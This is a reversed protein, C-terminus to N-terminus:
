NINVLGNQHDKKKSHFCVQVGNYNEFLHQYQSLKLSHLWYKIDLHMSSETKFKYVNVARKSDLRATSQFVSGSTESPACLICEGSGYIILLHSAARIQPAPCSDSETEHM